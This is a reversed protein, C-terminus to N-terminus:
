TIPHREPRVGAAPIQHGSQKIDCLPRRPNPSVRQHQSQGAGAKGEVNLHPLVLTKIGTGYVGPGATIGRRVGPTAGMVPVHVVATQLVRAHAIVFCFLHVGHIKEM